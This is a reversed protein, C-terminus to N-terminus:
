KPKGQNPSRDGKAAEEDVLEVDGATELAQTFETDSAQNINIVSEEAQVSKEAPAAPKPSVDYGPQAFVPQIGTIITFLLVLFFKGRM